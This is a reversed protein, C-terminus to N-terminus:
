RPLTEPRAEGLDGACCDTCPREPRCEVFPAVLRRWERYGAGTLHLEDNSLDDRISGDSPDVFAPRLDIWQAGQSQALGELARNLGEIRDRESARRPLVSLVAVRTGPADRRLTTLIEAYREATSEVSAGFGLDNTGIMLFVQAPRGDTVQGLRELVDATTDGPVGRNRVALGPFLEEWRAGDTLSDGLFVVDGPQVPSADFFSSLRERVPQLFVARAVSRGSTLLALAALLGLANLALSIGLLRRM